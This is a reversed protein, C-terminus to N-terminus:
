TIEGLSSKVTYLIITVKSTGYTNKSLVYCKIQDAEDM